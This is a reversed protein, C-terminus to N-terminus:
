MWAGGGTAGTQPDYRELSDLVEHGDYGGCVYLLRPVGRVPKRSSDARWMWEAAERAQCTRSLVQM